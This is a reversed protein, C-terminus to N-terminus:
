TTLSNEFEDLWAPRKGRGDQQSSQQQQNRGSSQRESGNQQQPDASQQNRSFEGSGRSPTFAETTYGSQNLKTTLSGIDQRLTGAMEENPARVTVRVEGARDMLRVEVKQNDGAPVSISIQHAAGTKATEDIAPTLAATQMVQTAPSPAPTSSPVAPSYPTSQNNFAPMSLHSVESPVVSPSVAAEVAPDSASHHSERNAGDGKTDPNSNANANQDAQSQPQQLNIATPEPGSPKNAPMSPQEAAPNQRSEMVAVVTEGSTPEALEGGPTGTVAPATTRGTSELRLAFALESPAAKGTAVEDINLRAHNQETRPEISRPTVNPSAVPDAKVATTQATTPSPAPASNAPAPPLAVPALVTQAAAPMTEKPTPKAEAASTSKQSRSRETKFTPATSPAVSAPVSDAAVASAMIASASTAVSIVAPTAPTTEPEVPDGAAPSAPEQPLSSKSDSAMTLKVPALAPTPPPVPVQPALPLLPLLPAPTPDKQIPAEAAPETTAQTRSNKSDRSMGFINFSLSLPLPQNQAPTNSVSPSNMLLANLGKNNRLARDAPTTELPANGAPDAEQDNALTTSSQQLLSLFSNVQAGAGGMAVIPLGALGAPNVAPM